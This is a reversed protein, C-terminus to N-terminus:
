ANVPFPLFIEGNGFREGVVQLGAILGKNLIEEAPINASIAVRTLEDTRTIDLEILSKAIEGLDTM